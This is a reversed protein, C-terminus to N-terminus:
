QVAGEFLKFIVKDVRYTETFTVTFYGLKNEPDYIAQALELMGLLQSYARDYDERAKNYAKDANEVGYNEILDVMTKIVEDIVNNLVKVREAKEQCINLLAELNTEVKKEMVQIEKAFYLHPVIGM